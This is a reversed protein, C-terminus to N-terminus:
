PRAQRKSMRRVAVGLHRESWKDNPGVTGAQQGFDRAGNNIDKPDLTLLDNLRM